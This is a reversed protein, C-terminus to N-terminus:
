LLYTAHEKHQNAYHVNFM